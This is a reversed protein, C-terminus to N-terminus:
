RSLFNTCEQCSYSYTGIQQAQKSRVHCDVRPQLLDLRTRLSRKLFLMSPTEGTTAHPTNRYSILFTCLQQQSTFANSASKMAQKFTQVLREVAGNSASHYPSTRIHKIGNMRMFSEFESSTFQPGNDSVLQEPLGYSSFLSRLIDITKQTTTGSMEHIEPWKSHADVLLFYMKGKFPGAFHILKWITVNVGNISLDATLPKM